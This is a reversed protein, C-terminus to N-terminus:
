ASAARMPPGPEAKGPGELDRVQEDAQGHELVDRRAACVRPRSRQRNQLASAVASSSAPDLRAGLHELADAEFSPRVVAHGVQRVALLALELDRHRQGGLRPQQQEVLRGGPERDGLPRAEPLRSSASGRDSGISRISCSM